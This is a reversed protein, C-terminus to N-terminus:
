DLLGRGALERALAEAGTFQLAQWGCAQAAEVNPAHDDIFLLRSAPLGFRQRAHEYIAPEPKNLGARSSFVGDDFHRLFAHTRELHQAYPLPMNSLYFLRRGTAKLRELLAVTAHLPTLAAPVADVVAQVEAAGLGTRAAIRRVLAPVEVVGRDFDGWDSAYGQFIQAVWHAAAAPTAARQPLVRALLAEPQWDFLVRGFDFVVATEGGARGVQSM